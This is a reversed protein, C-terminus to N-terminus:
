SNLNEQNTGEGRILDHLQTKVRASVTDGQKAEDNAKERFQMIRRAYNQSGQFKDAWISLADEDEVPRIAEILIEDDIEEGSKPNIRFKHLKSYAEPNDRQWLLFPGIERHIGAFYLGSPFKQKDPDSSTKGNIISGGTIVRANENLRAAVLGNLEANKKDFDNFAQENSTIKSSGELAEVGDPQAGEGDEM